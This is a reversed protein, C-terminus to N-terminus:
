CVRSHSIKDSAASQIEGSTPVSNPIVLNNIEQGKLYLHRAYSLPNADINAFYINCWAAIDTIHVATLGSCGSFASEGISTVSNPITVSAINTCGSFAGAVIGLTGGKIAIVIQVGESMTGKYKYVVKGIYILGDPQNEYWATGDFAARGINTLSNPITITTLGSCDM